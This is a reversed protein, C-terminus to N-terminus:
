REGEDTNSHNGSDSTESGELSDSTKFSLDIAEDRSTKRRRKQNDREADNENKRKSSTPEPNVLRNVLHNINEMGTTYQLIPAQPNVSNTLDLPSSMANPSKSNRTKRLTLSPLHEVVGGGGGMRAMGARILVDIVVYLSKFGKGSIVIGSLTELDRFFFKRRADRLGPSGARFNEVWTKLVRPKEVRLFISGPLWLAVRLEARFESKLSRLVSTGPGKRARDM